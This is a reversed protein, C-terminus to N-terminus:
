CFRLEIETEQMIEEMKESDTANEDEYIRSVCWFLTYRPTYYSSILELKSIEMDSNDNIGNMFRFLSECRKIKNKLVAISQVVIDQNDQTEIKSIAELLRDCEKIGLDWQRIQWAHDLLLETELHIQPFASNSSVNELENLVYARHNSVLEEIQADFASHYGLTERVQMFRYKQLEHAIMLEEDKYIKQDVAVCSLELADMWTKIHKRFGLRDLLKLFCLANDSPYWREAIGWGTSAILKEHNIPYTHWTLFHRGDIGDILKGLIDMEETFRKEKDLWNAIKLILDVLVRTVFNYEEGEISIMDPIIELAKEPWEEGYYQEYILSLTSWNFHYLECIFDEFTGIEREYNLRNIFAAYLRNVNEKGLLDAIKYGGGIKDFITYVPGDNDEDIDGMDDKIPTAYDEFIAIASELMELYYDHDLKEGYSPNELENTMRVKIEDSIDYDLLANFWEKYCIPPASELLYDVFDDERSSSVIADAARNSCKRVLVWYWKKIDKIDKIHDTVYDLLYKDFSDCAVLEADMRTYPYWGSVGPYDNSHEIHNIIHDAWKACVSDGAVTDTLLAIYLHICISDRLSDRLYAGMGFRAWEDSILNTYLKLIHKEPIQTDAIMCQRPAKRWVEILCKTFFVIDENLETSNFNSDKEFDRYGDDVLYVDLCEAFSVYFRDIVNQVVEPYRGIIYEDYAQDAFAYCTAGDQHTITMLPLLNNFLGVFEYTIEQCTIYRKYDNLSINSFLAIAVAIEEIKTRQNIGYFSSVYELYSRVFRTENTNDFAYDGGVSVIAKLYLFRYDSRMIMTKIDDMGVDPFNQKIDQFGNM